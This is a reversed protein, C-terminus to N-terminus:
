KHSREVDRWGIDTRYQLNNGEVSILSAAHYALARAEAVDVPSKAHGVVSVLRGGNVYFKGDQEKVGAGYITVGPVKMADELGFIRKDKVLKVLNGDPYGKSAVVVCVRPNCEMEIDLDDLYGDICANAIESMPTLFQPVVVEAEPAGWRSNFEVVKPGEKTIMVGTYLVGVYSNGEARMGEVAPRIITDDILCRLEPTIVRAPAVAGMGGTNPGLDYNDRAKHDQAACITNFNGKSDCFTYISAEEGVMGEEILYTEGAKGFSKMSKVTDLAESLSRVGIAGKGGCLGSAKIFLLGHHDTKEYFHVLYQVSEEPSHFVEFHPHPINCRKMFERSWQKDWELRSAARSPGFVAFRKEKLADVVGNALADDQCVDVLDPRYNLAALCVSEPDTHKANGLVLVDKGTRNAAKVFDNGATLIVQGVMPDRLYADAVAHARASCDVVMVTLDIKSDRQM